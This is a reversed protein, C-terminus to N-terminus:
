AIDGGGTMMVLRLFRSVDPDGNVLPRLVEILDGYEEHLWNSNTFYLRIFEGLGEQVFEDPTYGFGQPPADNVQILLDVLRPGIVNVLPALDPNAMIMDFIAHGAEHAMTGVKADLRLQDDVAILTVALTEPDREATGAALAGEENVPLHDIIPQAYPDGPDFRNDYVVPRGTLDFILQELGAQAALLEAEDDVIGYEGEVTTRGVVWPDYGPLNDFRLGEPDAVLAGAAPAPFGQDFITDIPAPPVPGPLLMGGELPPFPTQYRPEAQSVVFREAGAPGFPAAVRRFFDTPGGGIPSPRPHRFASIFNNRYTM